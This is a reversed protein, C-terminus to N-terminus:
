GLTGLPSRQGAQASASVAVRGCEATRFRIRRCTQQVACVRCRTAAVGCAFCGAHLRQFSADRWRVVTPDQGFVGVPLQESRVQGHDCFARGTMYTGPPILSRDGNVWNLVYSDTSLYLPVHVTRGDPHFTHRNREGNLFVGVDSRFPTSHGLKYFTLRVECDSLTETFLRKLAGQRRVNQCPIHKWCRFMPRGEDPLLVLNSFKVNPKVVWRRWLAKIAEKADDGWIWWVLGLVFLVSAVALLLFWLLNNVAWAWLMDVM